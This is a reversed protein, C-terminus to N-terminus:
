GPKVFLYGVGRKSLIVKPNRPDEELKGRLRQVYKKLYDASDLYEEGWVKELLFRHTLTRGENVALLYLLNYETPSLKIEKGRLVVKRAGPEIILEGFNVPEGKLPFAETRRLVTRIRALLEAPSFPKVIYDDAGLGLGKIKDKEEGRVTLIIIPVHSFSRIEKLVEFGSIAVAGVGHSPTRALVAM